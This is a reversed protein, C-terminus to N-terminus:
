AVRRFVIFAVLLIVVAFEVLTRWTLKGFLYQQALGTLLYFVVLLVVGGLLANVNWYNMAWLAEGLGLGVTAAYLWTRRVDAESARLLELALLAAAIGIMPASLISRLKAAYITVFLALAALYVALNLGLRAFAYAPDQLDVTLYEGIVVLALVLGAAAITFFAFPASDRFLPLILAAGAVVLCPLIWMIATYPTESLHVRPHARMISEVGAATMVSLLIAFLWPGTFVVNAQSGLITLEYTREPLVLLLSLTLGLVNMGALLSLQELPLRRTTRPESAYM